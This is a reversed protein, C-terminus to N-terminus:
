MMSNRLLTLSITDADLAKAAIRQHTRRAQPLLSLPLVPSPRPQHCKFTVSMKLCSTMQQAESLHSPSLRPRFVLPPSLLWTDSRSPPEILTTSIVEIKRRKASCFVTPLLQPKSDDPPSLLEVPSLKVARDIDGLDVRRPGCKSGQTRISRNNGPATGRIAAITTLKQHAQRFCKTRFIKAVEEANAARRESPETTVQPCFLPPASPLIM